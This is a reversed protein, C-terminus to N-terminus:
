DATFNNEFYELVHSSPNVNGSRWLRVSLCVSLRCLGGVTAYGTRRLIVRYFNSAPFQDLRRTGSFIELNKAGYTHSEASFEVPDSKWSGRRDAFNQWFQDLKPPSVDNLFLVFSCCIPFQRVCIRRESAARASVPVHCCKEPHFSIMLTGM